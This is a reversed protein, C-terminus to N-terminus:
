TIANQENKVGERGKTLEEYGFGKGRRGLHTIATLFKYLFHKLFAITIFNHILIILEGGGGKRLKEYSM